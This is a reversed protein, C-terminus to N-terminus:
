VGKVSWSVDGSVRTGSVDFLLIKFSTPNPVDVFDYIAYRPATGSPTVTISQVDTFPINFTTTTGGTDAAAVTKMGADNKLKVDLRLNLAQIELLDDGGSAAFDLKVKVYRFNTGYVQYVGVNDTWPDSTSNRYSITPTITVAGTIITSTLTATISTSAITAGFDFTEEYSATTPTPEIYIPFGAAIQDAPTSWSNNTFHQAFTETTNVPAFIRISGNSQTEKFVNTLTGPFTSNVDQFLQYDPPQAVTADISAPTGENEATDIATVWYKFTGSDKEFFTAFQAYATGVDTGGAWTAGKKVAYRDIPLTATAASWRLIVNNDITEPTIAVAGPASISLSASGATGYTGRSDIGAVWFTRAGVFDARRTFITGKITGISTGSAFDTGYRVEYEVIPLSASPASWTLQVNEGNVSAVVSPANPASITIVVSVATGVNGAIDRAFVWFTRPGGWSVEASYQNSKQRTLIDATAFVTGVRIEYDDLPVLGTVVDWNLIFDRGTISQTLGVVQPGLVGVIASVPTSLNGMVDKAQIWFTQNNTWDVPAKYSTGKVTAIFAGGAFTSGSRIEYQDIAFTAAALGWTLRFDRDLVTGAFSSIAPGVINVVATTAAASYNGSTDKAKIRLTHSGIALRTIDFGTGNYDKTIISSNIVGWNTDNDRIEYGLLDVDPIPDWKLQVNQPTLTATFNTVNSPPAAKGVLTYTTDVPASPVGRANFAYVRIDYVDPVMDTFEVHLDASRPMTLWNGNQQRVLVQYTVGNPSAEFSVVLMVRVAGGAIYLYESPAVNSVPDPVIRLNSITPRQLTLNNEVANYKDPYHELGTIKYQNNGSDEVALVRVLEAQLNDASLAWVSQSIDASPLASVFTLVSTSGASNNLTRDVLTGDPMMFSATYTHASSLTVPADITVATTTASVVRGGYRVTSRNPDVIKVIRGPRVYSADLGTQWTIVESEYKETFLIWNGVRHAMGQSTCGFGVVDLKRIGYRDIGERDECWEPKTEFFDRPDMWKVVVVTHRAKRGSGERYFKGDIVNTQNFVAMPDSPADQVAFIQGAAWYTMGRFVSALDSMVKFAQEQQTLLVNLTFRPELGGFGDPVLQDCYQAIAYLSWKDPAPIRSGLGYRPNTALDYYCWAPNNTWATVFTGDWIGTYVRTVPDYNSPVKVRLLRMHYARQPISSFQQADLVLGAVCSNAYRLKVDVIETYSDWWSKDARNTQAHDPSIRRVRINWPASGTLPIRYSEQYRSRTKGNVKKYPVYSTATLQQMYLTGTDSGSTRVVRIEYQDSVLGSVQFAATPEGSFYYRDDTPLYPGHYILGDAQSSLSGTRIVTWSGGGVPRYEISYQVTAFDYTEGDGIPVLRSPKRWLIDGSWASTLTPTTATSVTEPTIAVDTDDTGLIQAVFSGGSAQVDIAIQVEEGYINGTTTDQLVMGPFGMTVRVATADPNTIQRTVSQANTVEVGVASENEQAEFGPMYTQNQTGTRFDFGVTGFNMSGDSAQVPTKDLYVSRLGNVLGEVEGECILDLVRATAKSQLSDPAEFTSRAGDGTKGGAGRIQALNSV